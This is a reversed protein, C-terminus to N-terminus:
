IQAGQTTTWAGGALKWLPSFAAFGPQELTYIKRGPRLTPNLDAFEALAAGTDEEVLDLVARNVTVYRLYGYGRSTSAGVWLDGADRVLDRLLRGWLALAGQESKRFRVRVCVQFVPSDLPRAAFKAGDRAGGLIRDIAVHDVLIPRKGDALRGDFVQILGRNGKDNDSQLERGFLEDVLGQNAQNAILRARNRLIGRLSSGPLYPENNSKIFASVSVDRLTEPLSSRVLVPGEFHLALDFTLWSCPRCEGTADGARRGQAQLVPTGATWVGPGTRAQLWQALGAVSDREFARHETSALRVRGYGQGSKAGVQMGDTELLRLAEGLLVLESDDPGDGEYAIRFQFRAGAALVEQDFKAGDGAAGTLPDIRVHDRVESVAEDIRYAEEVVLRGRVAVEADAAGREPTFGFLRRHAELTCGLLGCEDRLWHNWVGRISAGPIYAQGGAERLLPADLAV